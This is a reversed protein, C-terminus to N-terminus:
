CVMLSDTHNQVAASQWEVTVLKLVSTIIPRAAVTFALWHHYCISTASWNVQFAVSYSHLKWSFSDFNPAVVFNYFYCAEHQCPCFEVETFEFKM